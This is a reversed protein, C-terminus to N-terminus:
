RAYLSELTTSFFVVKGQWREIVSAFLRAGHDAYWNDINSLDDTYLHVAVSRVDPDNNIVSLIDPATFFGDAVASPIYESTLWDIVSSEIDRDIAFTTNYLYM